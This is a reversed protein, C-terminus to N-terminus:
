TGQRLPYVSSVGRCTTPRFVLVIANWVLAILDEDHVQAFTEQVVFVDPHMKDDVGHSSDARQVVGIGRVEGDEQHEDLHYRKCSTQRCPSSDGDRVNDAGRATKSSSM